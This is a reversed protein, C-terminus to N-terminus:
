PVRCPKRNEYLRLRGAIGTALKENGTQRALEIARRATHVAQDYQGNEAYAAALTDLMDPRNQGTLRCARQALTVARPGNRLRPDPCTALLWALNNHYDAIDMRLRVAKGFLEAAQTYKREALMVLGLDNYTRASKPNKRLAIQYCRAADVMNGEKYMLYGITHWLTPDDPNLRRVQRIAQKAEADRGADIAAWCKIAWAYSFSRLSELARNIAELAKTPRGNELFSVAAEMQIIPDHPHRHSLRIIAERLSPSRYHTSVYRLWGPPPPDVKEPLGFVDPRYQASRVHKLLRRHEPRPDLEVMKEAWRRAAKLYGKGALIPILMKIAAVNDPNTMLVQGLCEEAFDYAGVATMVEAKTLMDEQNRLGVGASGAGIRLHIAAALPSSGKRCYHRAMVLCSPHINAVASGFLYKLALTEDDTTLYAKGLNVSAFESHPHRDLVHKWYEVASRTRARRM